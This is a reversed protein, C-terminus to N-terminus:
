PIRVVVIEISGSGSMRVLRVFKSSWFPFARTGQGSAGHAQRDEPSAECLGSGRVDFPTRCTTAQWRWGRQHSRGAKEGGTAGKGPDTLSLEFTEKIPPVSEHTNEDPRETAPFPDSELVSANMAVRPVHQRGIQSASLETVKQIRSEM